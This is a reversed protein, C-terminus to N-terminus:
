ISIIQLKGAKHLAAAAPISLLAKELVHLEKRYSAYNRVRSYKLRSIRNRLKPDFGFRNNFANFFITLDSDEELYGFGARYYSYGSIQDAINLEKLLNIPVKVWAHAPDEIFDFTKM